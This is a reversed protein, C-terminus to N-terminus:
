ELRIAREVALIKEQDKPRNLWRKFRLLTPLDAVRIGHILVPKANDFIGAKDGSADVKLGWCIAETHRALGPVYLDVDNFRNWIGHLHIAASGGLIYTNRPLCHRDLFTHIAFLIRM